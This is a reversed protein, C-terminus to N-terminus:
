STEDAPRQRSGCGECGQVIKRGVLSRALSSTSLPPVHKEGGGEGHAEGEDPCGHEGEDAGAVAALAVAAGGDFLSVVEVM